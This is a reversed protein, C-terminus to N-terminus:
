SYTIANQQSYSDSITLCLSGNQSMQCLCVVRILHRPCTQASLLQTIVVRATLKTAAYTSAPRPGDISMSSVHPDKSFMPYWGFHPHLKSTKLIRLNNNIAAINHVHKTVAQDLIAMFSKGCFVCTLLQSLFYNRAYGSSQLM